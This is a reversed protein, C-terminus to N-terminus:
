MHQCDSEVVLASNAENAPLIGLGLVEIARDQAFTLGAYM